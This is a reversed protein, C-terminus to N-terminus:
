QLESLTEEVIASLDTEVVNASKAEYTVPSTPLAAPEIFESGGAQMVRSLAIRMYATAFSFDSERNEKKLWTSVMRGDPKEITTRYLNNWDAIYDELAYAHERFLLRAETIENAVTDLLRTRDAYVINEAEKWKLLSMDVQEKFYCLYWDNYKAAMRKPMTSYPNPDCVIVANWMLKLTELDEWSKTKGHAFVGQPTGAVWIQENANQDVGICVDLKPITSPACARLIAERNVVLDSPTYAKGLVFNYFFDTSSEDKQELIRDASVWPAILQSIWYGRRKRSPYRAVWEGMRRDDDTIERHCKGCAYIRKESDVYHNRMEHYSDPTFDMFSRFNCHSCKVFWHKQDSDQYYMDVGFGIQSPNSLRWRWGLESAQLRSDYTNIVSMDPMRDLEDLILIDGSIAIAERESFAGKFYTFRDGIKKQTISDQTVISQIHPNSAILVDVKPKVFDNIINKSPLVYIVNARLYKNCWFTKFIRETSEGVQASKRVVIDPSLDCYLDILFRHNKFELPKQNETVTKKLTVWAAPSSAIYAELDRM